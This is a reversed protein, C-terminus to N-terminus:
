DCYFNDYSGTFEDLSIEFLNKSEKNTHVDWFDHTIGEILKTVCDNFGYCELIFETDSYIDINM